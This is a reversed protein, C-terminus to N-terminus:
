GESWEVPGPRVVVPEPGSLDVVTSSRGVPASGQLYVAVADGLIARAAADDSAPPEGSRNASTVTLPGTRALLDLAVPHDPVRLAVTDREDDGVWHPTAPTRHVVVTLAGPWHAAVSDPVIGYGRADALSAALVPIAKEDSRGKAAFLRKMAHRNMPDAGIGYVTDTPLGVILGAHLAALAPALDTM